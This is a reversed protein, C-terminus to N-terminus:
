VRENVGGVCVLFCKVSIHPLYGAALRSPRCSCVEVKERLTRRCSCSVGHLRMQLRIFVQLQVLVLLVCVLVFPGDMLYLGPFLHKVIQIKHVM